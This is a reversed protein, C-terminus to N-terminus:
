KLKSANTSIDVKRYTFMFELDHLLESDLSLGSLLIVSTILERTNAVM